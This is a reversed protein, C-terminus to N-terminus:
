TSAPPTARDPPTRRLERWFRAPPGSLTALVNECARQHQASQSSVRVGPRGMADVTPWVDRDSHPLGYEAFVQRVVEAYRAALVYAAVIAPVDASTIAIPADVDWDERTVM